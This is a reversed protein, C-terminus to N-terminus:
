RIDNVPAFYLNFGSNINKELNNVNVFNRFYEWVLRKKNNILSISQEKRYKLLKEYQEQLDM